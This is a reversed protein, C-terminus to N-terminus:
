HKNGNGNKLKESSDRFRISEEIMTKITHLEAEIHIVLALIVGILIMYIIDMWAMEMM